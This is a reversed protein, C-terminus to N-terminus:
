QPNKRTGDGQKQRGKSKGGVPSAFQYRIQGIVLLNQSTLFFQLNPVQNQNMRSGLNTETYTDLKPDMCTKGQPDPGPM